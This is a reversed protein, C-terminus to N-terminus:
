GSLYPVSNIALSRGIIFFKNKEKRYGLVGSGNEPSDLTSALYSSTMQEDLWVRIKEIAYTDHRAGSM